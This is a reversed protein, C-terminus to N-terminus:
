KKFTETFFRLFIDRWNRCFHDGRHLFILITKNLNDPLFCKCSKNGRPSSRKLSPAKHYYSKNYSFILSHFANNLIDTM